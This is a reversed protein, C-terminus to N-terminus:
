AMVVTQRGDIVREIRDALNPNISRRALESFEGIAQTFRRNARRERGIIKSLMPKLELTRM